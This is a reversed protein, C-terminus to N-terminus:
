LQYRCLQNCLEVGSAVCFSESEDLSDRQREPCAIASFSSTTGESVDVDLSSDLSFVVVDPSATYCCGCPDHLPHSDAAAGTQCCCSQGLVGQSCCSSVGPESCCSSATEDSGTLQGSSSHGVSGGCGCSAAVAEQFPLLLIALLALLKTTHTAIQNM